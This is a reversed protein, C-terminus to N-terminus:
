SSPALRDIASATANIRRYTYGANLLAFHAYADPHYLTDGRLVERMARGVLPARTIWSGYPTLKAYAESEPYYYARDVVLLAMHAMEHILTRAKRGENDEEFFYPCVYLRSLDTYYLRQERCPYSRAAYVVATDGSLRTRIKRYNALVEDVFQEDVEGTQAPDYLELFLDQQAQSLGEWGQALDLIAQDVLQLSLPTLAAVEIEAQASAQPTSNFAWARAATRFAMVMVVILEALWIAKKGVM